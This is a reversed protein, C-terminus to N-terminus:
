TSIFLGFAPPTKDKGLLIKTTNFQLTKYSFLFSSLLHTWKYGDAKLTFQKVEGSKVSTSTDFGEIEIDGCSAKANGVRVRNNSMVWNGPKNM